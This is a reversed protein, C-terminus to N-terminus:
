YNLISIYNGLVFAMQALNAYIANKQKKEQM